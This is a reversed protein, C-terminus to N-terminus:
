VERASMEDSQRMYPEVEKQLRNEHTYRADKNCLRLSESAAIHVFGPGSTTIVRVDPQVVMLASLLCNDPTFAVFVMGGGGGGGVGGVGGGGGGVV